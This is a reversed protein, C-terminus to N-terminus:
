GSARSCGSSAPQGPLGPLRWSRRRRTLFGGGRPAAASNRRPIQCVRFIAWRGKHKLLCSASCHCLLFPRFRGINDGKGITFRLGDINASTHSPCDLFQPLSARRAAGSAFCQPRSPRGIDPLGFANVADRNGIGPFAMFALVGAPM